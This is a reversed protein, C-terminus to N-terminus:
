RTLFYYRYRFMYQHLTIPYFIIIIDYFLLSLILREHRFQEFLIITMMKVVCKATKSFYVTTAM